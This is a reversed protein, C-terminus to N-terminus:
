KGAVKALEAPIDQSSGTGTYRVIGERDVIVVFSTTLAGFARVAAGKEDYLTLFPPKEAAVYRRVRAKSENVTVDVGFFDVRDGYQQHAKRMTPMLARCIECWTAWFEIVAPRQGITAGVRVLKGDLDPVQVVPARDGPKPGDQGHAAAPAALLLVGLALTARFSSNV